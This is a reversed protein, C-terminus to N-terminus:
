VQTTVSGDVASAVARGRVFYNNVFLYAAPVVFLTLITGLSMGGIIVWGIQNRATAGAGDSLVLPLAGFVMAAATMLIPRLRTAAGQSIAHRVSMGQELLRNSFDVILIGNKSILGVLMILGIKTYINLTTDTLYMAYLAGAIALPVSLMVVLPDVLSNFHVALLLYILALAVAFAVALQAGSRMLDRAEDTFAYSYQGPMTTDAYNELWSIAQSLTYGDGISATVTASRMQDFQDLSQPIVVDNLSVLNELSVM